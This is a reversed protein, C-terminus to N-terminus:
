NRTAFGRTRLTRWAHYWLGTVEARLAEDVFFVEQQITRAQSPTLGGYETGIVVPGALMTGRALLAFVPLRKAFGYEDIFFLISSDSVYSILTDPEPPVAEDPHVLAAISQSMTGASSAERLRVQWGEQNILLCSSQPLPPALMLIASPSQKCIAALQAGLVMLPLPEVEDLDRVLQLQLVLPIQGYPAIVQILQQITRIEHLSCGIWVLFDEAPSDSMAAQKERRQGKEAVDEVQAFFTALPRDVGVAICYRPHKGTLTYRSM